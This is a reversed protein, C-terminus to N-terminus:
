EGLVWDEAAEEAETEFDRWDEFTGEESVFVVRYDEHTKFVFASRGTSESYYESELTEGPMPVNENM